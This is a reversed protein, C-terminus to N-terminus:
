VFVNFRRSITWFLIYYYYNVNIDTKFRSIFCKLVYCKYVRTYKIVSAPSDDSYAVRAIM